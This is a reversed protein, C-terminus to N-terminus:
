ATWGIQTQFRERMAAVSPVPLFFVHLDHVPVAHKELAADIRAKLDPLANELHEAFVAEMKDPAVGELKAFADFDFAILMVSTDLRQNSKENYPDLFDLIAASLEEPFGDLDAHQEILFLEHAMKDNEVNEAVSEAAKMIADGVSQYCKSEGWLLRLAGASDELRFHIGDSGHVPMQSNTKLSMKAVLQPARLVSEILLYTIVEGFEGNRNTERNAKKFLDVARRHLRVADEMVKAAPMGVWREQAKRLERRPLCFGVLKTVLIDVFDEVTPRGGRFAVYHAHVSVDSRGSSSRNVITRLRPGLDDHGTALSSVFNDLDITGASDGSDDMSDRREVDAELSNSAPVVALHRTDTTLPQIRSLWRRLEPLRPAM